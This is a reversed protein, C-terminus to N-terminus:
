TNWQSKQMEIQGELTKALYIVFLQSLAIGLAIGAITYLNREAWSRVIEICGSTWVKKSAEAVSLEQVGYGCMINILGSSIDTANMCCSFPVGCREVSPSSCNFYENKSWDMYGESSLGCCKFEQQAFDILNQLDADERYTHIIKDTFSEELVSQMTHPFVFGMIAIAMELLFFVLLCLSYFKLLCTNERLAGVCGAFSVIFIVGGAIVMVLSINLVVDYITEVKILGTAQWKDVFAYLGVGILLGGFLWFVFNLLFIMYKVCSSVYTFNNRTRRRHM